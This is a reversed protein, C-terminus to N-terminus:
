ARRNGRMSAFIWAATSVLLAILALWTPPPDSSTVGGTQALRVAPAPSRTSVVAAAQANHVTVTPGPAGTSDVMRVSTDASPAAGVPLRIEHMTVVIGFALAPFPIAAGNCAVTLDSSSPLTFADSYQQRGLPPLVVSLRFVAAGSVGTDCVKKVTTPAAIGTFWAGHLPGENPPQTCPQGNAGINFHFDAVASSVTPFLVTVWVEALGAPANPEITWRYVFTGGTDPVGVVQHTRSGDPYTVVVHVVGAGGLPVTITQVGGPQVCPQSITLTFPVEMSASAVIASGVLASTIGGLLAAFFAVATERNKIGVPVGQKGAWRARYWGRV